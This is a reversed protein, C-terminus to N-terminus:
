APTIRLLMVAALRELKATPVSSKAALRHWLVAAADDLDSTAFADRSWAELEAATADRHAEYTALLLGTTGDLSIQTPQWDPRKARWTGLVVTVIDRYREDGLSDDRTLQVLGDAGLRYCRGLGVNGVWAVDGSVVVATAEAHSGKYMFGARLAAIRADAEGLWKARREGDRTGLAVARAASCAAELETAPMMQAAGGGGGRMLVYLGDARWAHAYTMAYPEAVAARYSGHEIM